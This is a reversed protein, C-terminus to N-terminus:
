VCLKKNHFINFFIHQDGPSLEMISDKFGISKPIVNKSKLINM